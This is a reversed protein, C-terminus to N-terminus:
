KQREKCTQLNRQKFINRNKKESQKTKTIYFPPIEGGKKKHLNNNEKNLHAYDMM